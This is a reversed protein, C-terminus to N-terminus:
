NKLSSFAKVSLTLKMVKKNSDILIESIIRVSIGSVETKSVKLKITPTVKKKEVKIPTTKIKEAVQITENGLLEEEIPKPLEEVESSNKKIELEKNDAFNNQTKQVGDTNMNGYPLDTLILDVSGSEIKDSEILCDGKLLQTM